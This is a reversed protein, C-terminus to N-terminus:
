LADVASVKWGDGTRDMTMRVRNQDLRSGTM